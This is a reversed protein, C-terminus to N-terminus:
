ISPPGRKHNTAVQNTSFSHLIFHPKYDSYYYKVAFSHATINPVGVKLGKTKSKRKLILIKHHGKTKFAAVSKKSQGTTGKFESKSCFSNSPIAGKTQIFLGLFLSFCLFKLLRM